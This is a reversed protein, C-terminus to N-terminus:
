SSCLYCQGLVKPPWVLPQQSDTGMHWGDTDGRTVVRWQQMKWVSEQPAVAADFCKSSGASLVQRVPFAVLRTGEM